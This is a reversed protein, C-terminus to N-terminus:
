SYRFVNNQDDRAVHLHEAGTKDHELKVAVMQFDEIPEVQKVTYGHTKDGVNFKKARDLVEGVISLCRLGHRPRCIIEPRRLLRLM